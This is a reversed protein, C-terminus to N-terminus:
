YKLVEVCSTKTMLTPTASANSQAFIPSFDGFTNAASGTLIDCTFVIGASQSPAFNTDFIIAGSVAYNSPWNPYAFFYGTGNDHDYSSLSGDFSELASPFTFGFRAGSAGSIYLRYTLRYRASKALSVILNDLSTSVMTTTNTRSVDAGLAARAIGLNTLAQTIEAGPITQKRSLVAKSLRNPGAILGTILGSNM